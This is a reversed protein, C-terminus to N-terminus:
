RRRPVTTGIFTFATADDSDVNPECKGGPVWPDWERQELDDSPVGPYTAKYESNHQSRSQDHDGLNWHQMMASGNM